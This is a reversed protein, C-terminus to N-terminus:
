ILSIAERHIIYLKGACLMAGVRYGEYAKQGPQARIEM